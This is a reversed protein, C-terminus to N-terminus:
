QPALSVFQLQKAVIDDLVENEMESFPIDFVFEQRWRRLMKKSVCILETIRNWTFGLSVLGKVQYYSISYAPRLRAVINEGASLDENVMM